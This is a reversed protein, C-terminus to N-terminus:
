IGLVTCKHTLMEATIILWDNSEATSTAKGACQSPYDFRNGIVM